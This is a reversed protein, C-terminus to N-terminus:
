LARDDVLPDKGEHFGEDDEFGQPARLVGGTLVVLGVLYVAAIILLIILM